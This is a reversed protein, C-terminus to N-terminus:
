NMNNFIGASTVHLSVYFAQVIKLTRVQICHAVYTKYM